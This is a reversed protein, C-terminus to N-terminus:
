LVHNLNSYISDSPFIGPSHPMDALDWAQVSPPCEFLLHNCTEEEAGCRPCARDM